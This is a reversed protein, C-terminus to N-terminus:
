PRQSAYTTYACYTCRYMCGFSTLLAIFHHHWLSRSYPYPIHDLDYPSPKYTLIKNFTQEVFGYFREIQSNKVILNMEHLAREAHEACLSPYIGDVVIKSSPFVNRAVGLAEKVGLYWYTMISTILIHESLKRFGRTFLHIAPYAM